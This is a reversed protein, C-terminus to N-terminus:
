EARFKWCGVADGFPVGVVADHDGWELDILVKGGADVSARLAVADRWKNKRYCFSARAGTIPTAPDLQGLVIAQLLSTPANETERPVDTPPPDSAIAQEEPPVSLDAVQDPTLQVIEEETLEGGPTAEGSAVTEALEGLSPLAEDPKIEGADEATERLDEPPLAEPTENVAEQGAAGTTKKDRKAMAEEKV